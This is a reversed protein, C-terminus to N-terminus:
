FFFEDINTRWRVKRSARKVKRNMKACRARSHHLCNAEAKAIQRPASNSFNVVIPEPITCWLNGL